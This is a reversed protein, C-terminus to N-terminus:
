RTTAATIHELLEEINFPKPLVATVGPMAAAADLAQDRKASVVIIPPMTQGTSALQTIVDEGSMGPLQLDLLVVAYSATRQMAAGAHNNSAPSGPVLEALADQGTRVVTTTYGEIELLMTLMEAIAQDDEVILIQQPTSVPDAADNVMVRRAATM